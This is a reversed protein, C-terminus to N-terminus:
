EIKNIWVFVVLFLSMHKKELKFYCKWILNLSLYCMNGVTFKNALEGFLQCNLHKPNSCFDLLYRISKFDPM